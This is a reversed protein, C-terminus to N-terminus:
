GTNPFVKSVKLHDPTVQFHYRFCKNDEKINEDKSKKNSSKKNASKVQKNPTTLMQKNNPKNEKTSQENGKKKKNSKLVKDSDTNIYKKVDVKKPKPKKLGHKVGSFLSTKAKKARKSDVSQSRSRKTSSSTSSTQEIRPTHFILSTFLSDNVSKGYFSSSKFGAFADTM